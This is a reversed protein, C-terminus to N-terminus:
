LLKTEGFDPLCFISTPFAALDGVKPKGSQDAFTSQLKIMYDLRPSEVKKRYLEDIITSTDNENVEKLPLASTCSFAFLLFFVKM